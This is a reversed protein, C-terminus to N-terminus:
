VVNAIAIWGKTGEGLETPFQNDLSVQNEKTRTPKNGTCQSFFDHSQSMWAVNSKTTARRMLLFAHESVFHAWLHFVKNTLAMKTDSAMIWLDSFGYKLMINRWMRPGLYSSWIYWQWLHIPDKALDNSYKFYIPIVQNSPVSSICSMASDAHIYFWWDRKSNQLIGLIFFTRKPYQPNFHVQSTEWPADWANNNTNNIM